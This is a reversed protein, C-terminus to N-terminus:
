SLGQSGIDEEKPLSGHTGWRFFGSRRDIESVESLIVKARRAVLQHLLEFTQSSDGGPM